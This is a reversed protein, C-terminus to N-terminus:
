AAIRYFRIATDRYIARREAESFGSLMEDVIEIWTPYAIALTSVPWDGGFMIRNPGFAEVASMTYRKIQDRSWNRHDAETAVGSLKCVVNERRAIEVMQSRWPEVLGERIGPKGIHDLVIAVEPCLDALRIVSALQHHYICADFSWGFRPLLKVGAVFGPRICFAVDPEGQILRRVGHVLGIQALAELHPLVAEGKELPAHPVIARIRPDIKAQEAVWCAEDLAQDPAVDCELFVMTDVTGKGAAEDYDELLMPRDFAKVSALWPYRFRKPDWIHLHSDVIPFSPM